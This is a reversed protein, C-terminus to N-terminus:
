IENYDEIKSVLHHNQNSGHVHKYKSKSLAGGGFFFFVIGQLHGVHIWITSSGSPFYWIMMMLDLHWMMKGLLVCYKIAITHSNCQKKLPNRWKWGQGLASFFRGGGLHVFPWLSTWYRAIRPVEHMTTVQKMGDPSNDLLVIYIYLIRTYIYICVYMCIRDYGPLNYYNVLRFLEAMQPHNGKSVM